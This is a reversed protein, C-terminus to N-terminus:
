DTVGGTYSWCTGSGLLVPQYNNVLISRFGLKIKGEFSSVYVTVYQLNLLGEGHRCEIMKRGGTTSGEEIDANHDTSQFVVSSIEEVIRGRIDESAAERVHRFLYGNM